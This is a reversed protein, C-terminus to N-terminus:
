EDEFTEIGGKMRSVLKYKRSEKPIKIHFVSYFYNKSFDKNQLDYYIDKLSEMQRSKIGLFIAPIGNDDYSKLIVRGNAPAIVDSYVRYPFVAKSKSDLSVVICEFFVEEGELSFSEEKGVKNNNLDYYSIKINFHKKRKSEALTFRAPIIEQKLNYIDKKQREEESELWSNAKNMTACSSLVLVATLIIWSIKRIRM